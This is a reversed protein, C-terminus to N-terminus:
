DHLRLMRRTIRLLTSRLTEDDLDAVFPHIVSGAIAASVVAATVRAQVDDRDDMLVAYLRGIFEQFPEHDGLLRIIVPDHQLTSVWRRRTVAMEIVQTLLLSRARSRSTEAEARLLAPVLMALERDTVAIVIEDKTRFQHYVAAKTVGVADAIMQLSTGSVGKEGILDLAADLIRVQAATRAAGISPAGSGTPRTIM